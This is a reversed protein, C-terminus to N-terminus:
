DEEYEVSWFGTLNQASVKFTAWGTAHRGRSDSPMNRLYMRDGIKVDRYSVPEGSEYKVLILEEEDNEDYDIKEAYETSRRNFIYDSHMTEVTIFAMGMWSEVKVSVIPSTKFLWERSGADVVYLIRDGDSNKPFSIGVERDVFKFMNKNDTYDFKM